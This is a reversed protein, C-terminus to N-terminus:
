AAHEDARGGLGSLLQPLRTHDRRGQAPATGHGDCCQLAATRRAWWPSRFPGGRTEALCAVLEHARGVIPVRHERGAKMREAPVIWLGADLDFEDWRAGIVEGTRAATLITFQLALVAMGAATMLRGMFNPVEAYPLASHHGRTLKQRKPLLQDLHGRWRAPNDGLRLGKARAADLVSEIRGRVRSATEPKTTWLPKLVELVAGTDVETISLPRLSAAYTVLTMQWQDGHKQNRWSPRMDEVYADALEGFTKERPKARTALPDRGERLERRHFSAAERAKALTVDDAGATGLGMERQRGGFRYLFVWSKAGSPSVNLYLNGGDSHRGPKAVTSVGRASLLNRRLAMDGGLEGEGLAERARSLAEPSRHRGGAFPRGALTSQYQQDESRLRVTASALKASEREAM